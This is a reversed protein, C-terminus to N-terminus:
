FLCSAFGALVFASTAAIMANDTYVTVVQSTASVAASSSDTGDDYYFYADYACATDTVDLGADASLFATSTSDAYSGTCYGTTADEAWEEYYVIFM